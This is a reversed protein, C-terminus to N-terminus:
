KGLLINFLLLLAILDLSSDIPKCIIVYKVLYNNWLYKGLFAILFLTVVISVTLAFFDIKKMNDDTYGGGSQTNYYNMVAGKIFSQLM